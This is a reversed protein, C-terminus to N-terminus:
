AHGEHRKENITRWAEVIYRCRRLSLSSTRNFRNLSGAHIALMEDWMQRSNSIVPLEHPTCGLATRTPSCLATTHFHNYRLGNDALRDLTPMHIPGGFTSSMGFGMDDILILLVNPANSPAKVEFRPPAKVNRADFTTIVPRDPEQIPLVTRDVKDASAAASRTKSAARLSSPSAAHLASLIGLTFTFIAMVHIMRSIASKM